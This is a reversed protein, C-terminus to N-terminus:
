WRLKDAVDYNRIVVLSGTKSAGKIAALEEDDFEVDEFKVVDKAGARESPLNMALSIVKRSGDVPYGLAQLIALGSGAELHDLVTGNRIPVIKFEKM